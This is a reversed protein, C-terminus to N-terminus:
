RQMLIKSLRWPFAYSLPLPTSIFQKGNKGFYQVGTKTKSVLYRFCLVIKQKDKDMVIKTYIM